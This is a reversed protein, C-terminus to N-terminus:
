LENLKAFEGHFKVAAKNYALAADRESQFYGLHILKGKAGISAAWKRRLCHFHAGRYLSYIGYRTKRSNVRNQARTVFRLNCKRNDLRNRNIHDIFMGSPPMGMIDQHMYIEKPHNESGAWRLAYGKQHYYYHKKGIKLYDDDDVIAIQGKSLPIQKM